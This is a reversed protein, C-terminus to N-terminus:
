HCSLIVQLLLHKRIQWHLTKEQKLGERLRQADADNDAFISQKIEIIKLDAM